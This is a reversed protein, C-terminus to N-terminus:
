NEDYRTQLSQRFLFLDKINVVGNYDLDAILLDQKTLSSPSKALRLLLRALDSYTGLTTIAGDQPYLDGPSLPIGTFDLTIKDLPNVPMTITGPLTCHQTQGKPLCFKTALHKEGKLTISYDNGAPLEPSWIGFHLAYIGNGVYDVPVPPTVYGLAYNLKSSLFKVVVKASDMGLRAYSASDDTVGQLRFLIEFPRSTPPPTAGPPPPTSPFPSPPCWGGAPEAIYCGPISDVCAPKPQCTFIPRATSTPTPEGSAAKKTILFRQNVIAWVFLPLGVLLALVIGISLLRRTSVPLSKFRTILNM